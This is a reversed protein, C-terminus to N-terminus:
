GYGLLSPRYHVLSEPAPQLLRGTVPRGFVLLDDAVVQLLRVPVPGLETRDVVVGPSKPQLCGLSQAPGAPPGEHATVCRRPHIEDRSRDSRERRIIRQADVEYGIDADDLAHAAVEA